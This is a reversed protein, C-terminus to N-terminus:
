DDDDEDDDDIQPLDPEIVPAPRPAITPPTVIVPGVVIPAVMVRPLPVVIHLERPGGPGPWAQEHPREMQKELDRRAKEVERRAREIERAARERDREARERAREAEAEAKERAREIAEEAKERARERMEAAKEQARERAEEAKERAREAEEDDDGDGGDEDRDCTAKAAVPAREADPAPRPASARPPAPISPITLQPKPAEAAAVLARAEDEVVAREPAELKDLRARLEIAERAAGERDDAQIADRVRAMSARAATLAPSEATISTPRTALRLPAPLKVGIVLAGGAAIAAAAVFAVPRRWWPRAMEAGFSRRVARRLAAIEEETPEAHAPAIATKLTELLEEDKM